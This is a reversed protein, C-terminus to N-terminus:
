RVEGRLLRWLQRVIPLRDIGFQAIAFAAVTVAVAAHRVRRYFRALARREIREDILEDLATLRDPNQRRIFARWETGFRVVRREEDSEATDPRGADQAHSTDQARSM